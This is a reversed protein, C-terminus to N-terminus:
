RYLYRKALKDVIEKGIHLSATAAPSPANCVNIVRDTEQIMFDDVLNGQPSVAQARVGSPAVALHEARIEPILKQLAKVFATKSLSRWMEMVGVQWYKLGLSTCSITLPNGGNM